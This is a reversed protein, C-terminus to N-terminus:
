SEYTQCIWRVFRLWSRGDIMSGRWGPGSASFWDVLCWCM